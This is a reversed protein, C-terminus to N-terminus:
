IWGKSICSGVWQSGNCFLSVSSNMYTAGTGSVITSKNELLGNDLDVITITDTGDAAITLAATTDITRVVTYGVCGSEIAPPLTITVPTATAATIVCGADIYTLTIDDTFHRHDKQRISGVTYDAM